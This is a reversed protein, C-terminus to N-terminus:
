AASKTAIVFDPIAKARELCLDLADRFLAAQPVKTRRSHERLALLQRREVKTTFPVFEPTTEDAM